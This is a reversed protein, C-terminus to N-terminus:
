RRDGGFRTQIAPEYVTKGRIVAGLTDLADLLPRQVEGFVSISLQFSPNRNEGIFPIRGPGVLCIAEAELVHDHFWHASTDAPLLMVVVDVADRSAETRAKQLWDHKASGDGNTSWPPNCFVKGHWPQRLGDDEATFRTPAIPTPEAGSASDLDFGGVARSLPRWIEPPTAYENDDPDQQHGALTGQVSQRDSM